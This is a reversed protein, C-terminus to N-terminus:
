CGLMLPPRILSCLGTLDLDLRSPEGNAPPGPAPRYTRGPDM